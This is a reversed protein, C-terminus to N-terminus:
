AWSELYEAAARCIEPSEKAFGILSNCNSHVMGRPEPPRSHRHDACPPQATTFPKRCLACANGQEGLTVEIMQQTWGMSQLDAKRSQSVPKGTASNIWVKNKELKRAKSIESRAKDRKNVYDKRCQRCQGQANRNEPHGNQCHTKPPKPEKLERALDRRIKGSVKERLAECLKCSRSSAKLNDPIRPHGNICHTKRNAKQLAKYEEKTLVTKGLAAQKDVYRQHSLEDRCIKCSGKKDTNEPTRPHGRKCHTKM